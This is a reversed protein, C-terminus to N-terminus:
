AIQVDPLPDAGPDEDVRTAPHGLARATVPYSVLVLLLPLLSTRERALIGLNGISAFLVIWVVSYLSATLLYPRRRIARVASLVRRWSVLFLTVIFVNELSEALQTLGHARFPLPRILVYYADKPLATLSLSTSTNSSSGFDGLQNQAAVGTNTANTSLVHKISAADLNSLGFFHATVKALVLGGVVLVAIGLVKSLGSLPSVRAASRLPYAVALAVFLMLAVNPRILATLCLGLALLFFGLRARALIRAFGLAALGLGLSTLADKGIASTWFLLSPLFFLLMAYRWRDGDPVAIRFARYFLVLSVFALFAFVFFCGLTNSDTAVYIVGTIISTAGDGILPHIHFAFDGGRIQAAVTKGVNSYTYADAIGGYFHDIVYVWLPACVLKLAGSLMVLRFMRPDDDLRAVRRAVPPVAFLLLLLGIILGTWTTAPINM